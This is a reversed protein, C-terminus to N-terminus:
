KQLIVHKGFALDGNVHMNVKKELSSELSLALEVEREVSMPENEEGLEFNFFDGTSAEDAIAANMEFPIEPTIGVRRGNVYATSVHVFAELNKCKRGLDLM